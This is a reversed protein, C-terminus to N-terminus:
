KLGKYEDNFKRVIADTVDNNGYCATWEVLDNICREIFRLHDTRQTIMNDVATKMDSNGSEDRIRQKNLRNQIERVPLCNLEESSLM